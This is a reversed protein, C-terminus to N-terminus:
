NMAGGRNLCDLHIALRSEGRCEPGDWSFGSFILPIASTKAGTAQQTWGREAVHGMAHALMAAFEAEDL